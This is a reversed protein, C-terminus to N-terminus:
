FVAHTDVYAMAKRSELQPVLGHLYHHCAFANFCWVLVLPTSSSAKPTLFFDAGPRYLPSRILPPALPGTAEYVHLQTHVM